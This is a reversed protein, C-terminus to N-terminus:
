PKTEATMPKSLQPPYLYGMLVHSVVNRYIPDEMLWVHRRKAPITTTYIRLEGPVSM